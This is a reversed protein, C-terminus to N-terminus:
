LYKKINENLPLKPFCKIRNIMWNILPDEQNYLRDFVEATLTYLLQERQCLLENPQDLYGSSLCNLFGCKRAQCFGQINCESCKNEEKKLSNKICEKRKESSVGTKVDGICFEEQDVVYVCPYILGTPSISFSGFGANCYRPPTNIIYPSFKGDFLNIRVNLNSARADIYLEKIEGFAQRLIEFKEGWESFSDPVINLKLFGNNLLWEVSKALYIVNDPTVTMRTAFDVEADKLLLASSFVKEFTGKDGHTRRHMDHAEINGDMSLRVNFNYKKFFDSIERTLLTGNTTLSYEINFKPKSGLCKHNVYNVVNRILKFNLLPEGGHFNINFIGDKDKDWFYNIAEIGTEVSMQLNTKNKEYCYNCKLNCANTTLLNLKM